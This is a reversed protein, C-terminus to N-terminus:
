AKPRKFYYYTQEELVIISVLEWGDEGLGELTEQDIAIFDTRCFYYEWKQM